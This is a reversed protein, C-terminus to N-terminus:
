AFTEAEQPPTHSVAQYYLTVGNAEALLCSAATQVAELSADRLGDMERQLLDPVGLAAATALDQAREALEVREFVLQAEMQNKVRELDEATASTARELTQLLAGEAAELTTGAALRGGIVCLGPDFADTTHADIRTFLRQKEVLHTQLLASKGQGLLNCLIEVVCCGERSKGPIHFAKYLMSVPVQREVIKRKPALQKPEQPRVSPYAVGAPIPEFWKVCLREVEKRQVNGAVVLVANSPRYFRQFFDRVADLSLGEVHSLKKGITPWNYPHVSYALDMLHHWLDGYPQNLYGEKFEEVVVKRQIDFKREDFAIGLMRDSELWFATELNAAPLTCHYNTVDPTTYANNSGGVQQLPEDYAPIHLSGSFMLHEVLHALGTREASEDRSGVRYLVNVVAVPSTPDEHVVVQLGNSLTFNEIDM